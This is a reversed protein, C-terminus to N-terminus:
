KKKRKEKKSFYEIDDIWLGLDSFDISEEYKKFLNKSAVNNEDSVCLKLFITTAKHLIKKEKNSLFINEKECYAM